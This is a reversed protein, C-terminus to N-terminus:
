QKDKVIKYKFEKESFEFPKDKFVSDWWHEKKFPHINLTLKHIWQLNGYVEEKVSLFVRKSITDINRSGGKSNSLLEIPHEGPPDCKSCRMYRDSLEKIAEEESEFEGEVSLKWTSLKYEKKSM